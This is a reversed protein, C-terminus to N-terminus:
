WKKCCEILKNTFKHFSKNNRFLYILVFVLWLVVLFILSNLSYNELILYIIFILTLLFPLRFITLKKKAKRELLYYIGLATMGMLIAIITKDKFLNTLLLALLIIWSLSVSVCLVCFEKKIIFKVLLLIFFLGSIGILTWAIPEM